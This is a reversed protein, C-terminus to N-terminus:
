INWEVSGIGLKGDRYRWSEKNGWNMIIEVLVVRVLVLLLRKSVM